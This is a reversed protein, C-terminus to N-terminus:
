FVTVLVIVIGVILGLVFPYCLVSIMLLPFIRWGYRRYGKWNGIDPLYFYGLAELQRQSFGSNPNM